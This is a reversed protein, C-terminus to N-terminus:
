RVVALGCLHTCCLVCVEVEGVLGRLLYATTCLLEMCCCDQHRLGELNLQCQKAALSAANSSQCRMELYTFMLSCKYKIFERKIFPKIGYIIRLSVYILITTHQFPKISKQVCTFDGASVTHTMVQPQCSAVTTAVSRLSPSKRAIALSLFM